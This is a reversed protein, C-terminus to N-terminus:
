CTPCGTGKARACRYGYAPYSSHGKECIWYVKDHSGKTVDGPTLNENMEHDWEQALNPPTAFLCNNKNKRKGACYTCGKNNGTRENIM